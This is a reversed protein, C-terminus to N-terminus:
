PLSVFALWIVAAGLMLFAVGTVGAASRFAAVPIRPREDTRERDESLRLWLRAAYFLFAGSLGFLIVTLASAAPNDMTAM